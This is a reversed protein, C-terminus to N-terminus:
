VFQLTPVPTESILVSNQRFQIKFEEAVESVSESDDTIITLITVQEAEGKWFGVGEIMTFGEFRPSVENLIFHAMMENTVKGADPINRGLFIQFQM